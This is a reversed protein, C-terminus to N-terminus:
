VQRAPQCIKLILSKRSFTTSITKKKTMTTTRSLKKKKTRSIKTKATVASQNAKQYYFLKIHSVVSVFIM